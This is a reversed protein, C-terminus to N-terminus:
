KNEKSAEIAALCRQEPTAHICFWLSRSSPTGTGVADWLAITYENELGLEAIRNEVEMAASINTSYPPWHELPGVHYRGQLRPHEALWKRAEAETDCTLASASEDETFLEWSISPKAMMVERAIQEDLEQSM